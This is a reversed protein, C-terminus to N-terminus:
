SAPVPLLRVNCGRAKLSAGMAEAESKEWRAGHARFEWKEAGPEMAIIQVRKM